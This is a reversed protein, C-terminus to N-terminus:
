EDRRPPLGALRRATEEAAAKSKKLSTERGTVRANWVWAGSPSKAVAVDLGYPMKKRWIKRGDEATTETWDDM